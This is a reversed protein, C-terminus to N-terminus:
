QPDSSPNKPKSELLITVPGDNVMDVEMLEGFAGTEVRNPDGLADRLLRVFTNFMELARDSKMADHFDPKSGKDTRAFLTFQSIALIGLASSDKVSTKWSQGAENQFLKLKVM